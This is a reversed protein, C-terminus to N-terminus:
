DAVRPLDLDRLTSRDPPPAAKRRMDAPPAPPPPLVPRAPQAPDDIRSPDRRRDMTWDTVDDKKKQREKEEKERRKKDAPTEEGLVKFQKKMVIVEMDSLGRPVTLRGNSVPRDVLMDAVQHQAGKTGIFLVLATGQKASSMQELRIRGQNNFQFVCGWTGDATKFPYIVSIERESLVPVRSLTAVRRQYMLKAPMSFTGTDNPNTEDHFRVTVTPKKSMGFASAATLVLVALVIKMMWSIVRRIAIQLGGDIEGVTRRMFFSNMM